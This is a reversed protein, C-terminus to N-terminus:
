QDKRYAYLILNQYKYQEFPRPTAGVILYGFGSQEFLELMKGLCDETKVLHHHYEIAISKVLRIKKADVLDAIIEQEAGEVDIKLFDVESTIYTSLRVAPVSIKNAHGWEPRVSMMLSGPNSEDFFFDLAGAERALAKNHVEVDALRNAEVNSKLAQFAPPFPEFAIVRARPYQTKFFLVAMGINAGCDVILPDPRDTRIDYERNVFIESYLYVLSERTLYQIDFGAIRITREPRDGLMSLRMYGGLVRRRAEADLGGRKGRMIRRADRLFRTLKM